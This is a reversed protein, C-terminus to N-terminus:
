KNSINAVYWALGGSTSNGKITIDKDNKEEHHSLVNKKDTLESISKASAGFECYCNNKGNLPCEAGFSYIENDGSKLTFGSQTGYLAGDKKSSTYFGASSFTKNDQFYKADISKAYSTTKGHTNYHDKFTLSKNLDNILLVTTFAPKVMFYIIPLIVIIIAAIIAGIEGGEDALDYALKICDKIVKQTLKDHDKLLNTFTKSATTGIAAIGSDYMKDTIEQKSKKKDILDSIDQLDDILKKVYKKINDGSAHILESRKEPLLTICDSVEISSKTLLNEEIYNNYITIFEDDNKIDKIEELLKPCHKELTHLIKKKEEM